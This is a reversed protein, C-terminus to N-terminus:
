SGALWLGLGAATGGLIVTLVSLWALRAAHAAAGAHDTHAAVRRTSRWSAVTACAMGGYLVIKAALVKVFVSSFHFGRSTGVILLGSLGAAFVGVAAILCVRGLVPAIRDAFDPAASSVAAAIALCAAAGIWLAACAVHLWILALAM